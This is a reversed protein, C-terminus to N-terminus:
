WATVAVPQVHLMGGAPFGPPVTVQVTSGSAASPWTAVLIPTLTLACEPRPTIVFATVTLLSVRVRVGAVVRRADLRRDDLLWM